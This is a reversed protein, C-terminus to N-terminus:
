ICVYNWIWLVLNNGLEQFNLRPHKDQIRILFVGSGLDPDTVNRFQPNSDVHHYPYRNRLESCLEEFGLLDQHTELTRAMESIIIVTYIIYVM